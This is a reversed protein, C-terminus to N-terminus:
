AVKKKAVPYGNGVLIESFATRKGLLYGDLEYRCHRQYVDTKKVIEHAKELGYYPITPYLHHELHRNTNFPAFFFREIVGANITPTEGLKHVRDQGESEYHAHESMARMRALPNILLAGAQFVIFEAWFNGFWVTALVTTMFFPFVIKELLSAEKLNPLLQWDKLIKMHDSIGLFFLDKILLKKVEEEKKPYHWAEERQMIVYNPDKMTQTFQHHKWHTKRYVETSLMLPFSCFVNSLFDNIKENRHLLYHAGDHMILTLAHLRSAIVPLAVPIFWLSLHCLYLSLGIMSWTLSIDFITRWPKLVNLEKLQLPELM